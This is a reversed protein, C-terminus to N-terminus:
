LLRYLCASLVRTAVYGMNQKDLVSIESYVRIACLNTTFVLGKESWILRFVTAQFHLGVRFRKSNEYIFIQRPFFM